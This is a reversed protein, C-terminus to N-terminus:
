SKPKNTNFKTKWLICELELCFYPTYALTPRLSITRMLIPWVNKKVIIEQQFLKKVKLNEFFYGFDFHRCFLFGEPAFIQVESLLALPISPQHQEVILHIVAPFTSFCSDSPDVLVMQVTHNVFRCWIINSEKKCM